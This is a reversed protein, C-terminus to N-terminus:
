KIQEMGHDLINLIFKIRQISLLKMNNHKDKKMIMNYFLTIILVLLLKHKLQCLKNSNM